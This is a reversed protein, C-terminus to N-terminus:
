RLDFLTRIIRGFHAKLDMGTMTQCKIRNACDRLNRLDDLQINTMEKNALAYEATQM